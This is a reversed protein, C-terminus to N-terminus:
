SVVVCCVVVCCDSKLLRQVTLYQLVLVTMLDNKSGFLSFKEEISISDKISQINIQSKISVNSESLSM